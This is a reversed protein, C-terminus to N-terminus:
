CLHGMDFTAISSGHAASTRNVTLTASTIYERRTALTRAAYLDSIVADHM